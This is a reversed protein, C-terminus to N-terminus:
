ARALKKTHGANKVVLKSAPRPPKQILYEKDYYAMRADDIAGIAYLAAANQHCIMAVESRYKKNM